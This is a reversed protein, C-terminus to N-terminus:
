EEAGDELNQNGIKEIIQKAEELRYKPVLVKIEGLEGGLPFSTDKQDLILCELGASELNTKIMEAEYLQPTSFVEEWDSYKKEAEEFEKKTELEINCDSCIEVADEYEYGCNPCVKM